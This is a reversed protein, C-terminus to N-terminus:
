LGKKKINEIYTDVHYDNDVYDYYTFNMLSFDEIDDESYDNFIGNDRLLAYNYRVMSRWNDANPPCYTTAMSDIKDEDSYKTVDYSTNLGSIAYIMSVTRNPTNSAGSWGFVNYTEPNRTNPHGWECIMIAEAIFPNVDFIDSLIVVQEEPTLVTEFDIDSEIESSTYGYDEPNSYIDRVFNIIARTYNNDDTYGDYYDNLVEDNTLNNTKDYIIDKVIKDDLEFVNSWRTIIDDNSDTPLTSLNDRFKRGYDETVIKIPYNENKIVKDPVMVFGFLNSSALLVSVIKIDFNYKNSLKRKKDIKNSTNEKIYKNIRKM